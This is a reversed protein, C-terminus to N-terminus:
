GDQRIVEWWGFHMVRGDGLRVWGPAHTYRAPVMGAAELARACEAFSWFCLDVPPESQPVPVRAETHAELGPRRELVTFLLRGGPQLAQALHGLAGPLDECFDLCGVALAVEFRGWAPDLPHHYSHQAYRGAPRARRAVAVMEPSVDLGVVEVDEPLGRTFLGPGCGMDLVRMGPGVARTLFAEVRGEYRGLMPFFAEYVEAIQGFARRVGTEQRGGDSGDNM